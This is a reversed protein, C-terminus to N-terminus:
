AGTNIWFAGGHTHSGAKPLRRMCIVRRWRMAAAAARALGARAVGARAWDEDEVEVPAFALHPFAPTLENLARDREAPVHFFARLSDASPEDIATVEFDVLAAQILDFFGSRTQNETEASQFGSGTQTTALLAPWTRM